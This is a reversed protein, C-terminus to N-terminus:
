LLARIAAARRLITERDSGVLTCHGLKRLHRPSKGYDHLHLGPISLLPEREPITGLLNIMYAHGVANTSGLPLGLVARMHNEFQSTEAGEITWHGSNHVRPAIENAVLRGNAVFFEVTLVGCYDFRQLIADLCREAERQLEDDAYPASTSHLIGDDHVNEALPYFAASGDTGRVAILSVEREFQIWAEAIAPVSGLDRWAPELEQACRVLRQGRGDYGLRRAKLVVPWGLQTGVKALDDAGAVTVYPATAIGIAEFLQKESLRDQAVALAPPPPCIRSMSGAGELAEVPVNEIDFTVVDVQGALERMRTADNIAGVLVPGVQGGSSEADPDLFLSRIGLQYGAIALMRGLQGAGVIGVRM